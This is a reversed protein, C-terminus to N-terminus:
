SKWNNPARYSWKYSSSGPMESGGVGRPKPRTPQCFHQWRPQQQRLVILASLAPPFVHRSPHIQQRFFLTSFTLDVVSPIQLRIPVVCM